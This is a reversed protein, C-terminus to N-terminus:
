YQKHTGHYMPRVPLLLVTLCSLDVRYSGLCWGLFYLITLGTETVRQYDMWPPNDNEASVFLSIRARELVSSIAISKPVIVYHRLLLSEFLEQEKGFQCYIHVNRNYM